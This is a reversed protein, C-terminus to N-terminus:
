AGGVPSGGGPTGQQSGKKDALKKVKRALHEVEIMKWEMAKFKSRSMINDQLHLNLVHSLAPHAAFGTSRLKYM